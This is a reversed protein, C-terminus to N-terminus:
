MGEPADVPSTMLRDIRWQGDAGREWRGFWNSHIEIPDEGAAATMSEDYDGLTYAVDGHVWVEAMRIDISQITVGSAVTEDYMAPVEAGSRSMGPQIVRVDDTWLAKMGEADTALAAQEYADIRAALAARVSAEDVEAPASTEAPPPPAECAAVSITLLLALTAYSRRM